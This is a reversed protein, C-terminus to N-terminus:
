PSYTIKLSNTTKNGAKDTSAINIDNDGQALSFNYNFGGSQDLPVFIDNVTLTALPETQGSIKASKQDGHFTQGTTPEFITLHPASTDFTVGLEDSAQSTNGKADKATASITNSGIELNISAEFRGDGATLAQGKQRGNSVIQIEYGSQSFGTIKLQAENTAEPINDLRPTFITATPGEDKDRSLFSLSEAFKALLSVGFTFFFIFFVIAGIISLLLKKGADRERKQAMRSTRYYRSAM